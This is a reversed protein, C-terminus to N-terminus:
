KSEGLALLHSKTRFYIQGNAVAPTSQTVEGLQNRALVTFKDSAALVVVEGDNSVCYVKDGVCIPSASFVGGLREQWLVKGTAAELCSAIGLESCLFIHEGRVVPTPLYAVAKEMRWVEQPQTGLSSDGPRVAVFHKQATVFGCTGLILEGAIVPSAVAREQKKTDFVSIEWNTKGTKPDIATIGHQWNTFILEPKGSKGQYVCPTSYTANKPHRPSKWREKGTSCDLAVLSGGDDQDNPVILLDEFVIPSVGVGHQSKYPGLEAQWAVKGDHDLAIVTYQQPTAWTTYVRERDVAPTATAFSNRLHIPYTKSEFERTWLTKGDASSLCLVIRKGTKPDASTLFVREGWLVPSSQGVGPLEAKWRYDKETWQIPPKMTTSIGSGNPGRFRTWEQAAASSNIFLCSLGALAMMRSLRM